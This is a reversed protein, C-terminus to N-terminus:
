IANIWRRYCIVTAALSLFVQHMFTKASIIAEVHARVTEASKASVHGLHIKQRKGNLKFLLRRFGNGDHSISAM